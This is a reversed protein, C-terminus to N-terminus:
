VTVARIVWIVLDCLKWIALPVSVCLAVAGLGLIHKWGERVGDYMLQEKRRNIDSRNSFVGEQEVM